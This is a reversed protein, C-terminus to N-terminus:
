SSAEHHTSGRSLLGSFEGHISAEATARAKAADELLTFRGLFINKQDKGIQAMWKGTRRCLTVGIVGSSNSRGAKKNSANESRTAARLNEPKNNSTDGDRHDVEHPWADEGSALAFVIRSAPFKLSGIRVMYRIGCPQKIPYGAPQNAHKSNFIRSGRTTPFHSRPRPKWRLGSPTSEDVELSERIITMPLPTPTM